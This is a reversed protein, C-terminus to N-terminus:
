PKEAYAIYNDGLDLNYFLSQLLIFPFLFFPNFLFSLRNTKDYREVGSKISKEKPSLGKDDVDASKYFITSVIRSINGLPFGCNLIKINKYGAGELLSCLEKKEYRRLHGVAEDDKAYKKKHAPVSILAKGKPKLYSTWEKLVELDNEIHELVEFSFLYDAKKEGIEKLDDVVTLRKDYEKLNKRLAARNEEGIDYCIGNYGRDLFMATMDGTGAGFEIFDSPTWGKIVHKVCCMRMIHKPTRNWKKM